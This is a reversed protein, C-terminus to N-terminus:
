FGCPMKLLPALRQCQERQTPWGLQWCCRKLWALMEVVAVVKAEHSLAVPLSVKQLHLLMLQEQSKNLKLWCCCRCCGGAGCYYCCHSMLLGRVMMMWRACCHLFLLSQVRVIRM